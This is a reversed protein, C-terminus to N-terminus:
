DEIYHLVHGWFPKGKKPNFLGSHGIRDLGLESPNVRHHTISASPYFDMMYQVARITAIKDDTFSLWEIRQNVSKYRDTQSNLLSKFYNKQRSIYAWQNAVDRAIAVGRYTIGKPLHGFIKTVIPIQIYFMIFSFVNVPFNFLTFYGGTSCFFIAKHIRHFNPVIGAVQGAVSHGLYYIKESPHKESLWDICSPIDVM